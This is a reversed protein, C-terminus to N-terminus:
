RNGDSLAASIWIRMFGVSESDARSSATTSCTRRLSSCIRLATAPSGFTYAVVEFVAQGGDRGLAQAVLTAPELDGVLEDLSYPRAQGLQDPTRGGGISM